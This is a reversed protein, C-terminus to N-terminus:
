GGRIIGRTLEYYKKTMQSVAKFKLGTKALEIMERDIDVNNGNNHFSEENSIEMAMKDKIENIEFIANSFHDDHTKEMAIDSYSNGKQIQKTLTQEFDLTRRKYGPTNINAINGSIAQSRMSLGKLAVELTDATKQPNNINTDISDM